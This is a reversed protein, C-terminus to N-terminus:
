KTIALEPFNAAVNGCGFLSINYNTILFVPIEKLLSTYKYNIEFEQMFKGNTFFDPNKSAIGGALYMGGTALITLAFSRAARAYFRVFFEFAKKCIPCKKSHKSIAAARDEANEIEETWENRDLMEMELIFDYVTVLGRGSLIDEWAAPSEGGRQDKAYQMLEYEVSDSVPLETWGRETAQPIHRKHANDFVLFTHGLGTGAGIVGKPANPVVPADKKGPHKLEILDDKEMFELGFGIAKFDNILAISELLTNKLIKKADVDWKANTMKVYDGAANIPGAPSLCAKSITIDFNEHAQKLTENIADGVGDIEQSKFRLGFLPSVDKEKVGIVALTTNTASVDGGLVFSDYDKKDFKEFEIFESEM